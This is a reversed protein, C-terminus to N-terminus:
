PTPLNNLSRMFQVCVPHVISISRNELSVAYITGSQSATYLIGDAIVPTSVFADDLALTWKITFENGTKVNVFGTLQPNGRFISWDDGNWSKKQKSMDENTCSFYLVVLVGAVIVLFIILILINRKNFIM